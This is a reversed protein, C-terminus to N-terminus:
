YFIRLIPLELCHGMLCHERKEGKQYLLFIKDLVATITANKHPANNSSNMLPIVHGIGTMNTEAITKIMRNINASGSGVVVKM